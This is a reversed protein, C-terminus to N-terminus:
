LKKVSEWVLQARATFGEQYGGKFRSPSYGRDSALDDLATGCNEHYNDIVEFITEDGDDSSVIELERLTATGKAWEVGDQMGAEKGADFDEMAESKLRKM